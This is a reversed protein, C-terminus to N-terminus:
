DRRGLTAFFTRAIVAYGAANAHENPGVPPAACEWTLQCILAVDKPVSGFGPLNVLGTIDASDFATFVDAVRAHSQTFASTLAANLDEGLPISGEAFAEGSPGTLWDALEPVYYTMGVITASPDAARLRMLIAATNQGATQIAPTACAAVASISTLAVCPNLDNAGIDITILPVHGRHARLFALAADLQNGTDATLSFRQDGAYGCIGGNIMTATTEGPCGLKALVLDRDFPRLMAYLQNAYGQDTPLTVGQANPQDGVSLSDGLSLYYEPAAHYGLGAHGPASHVPGAHDAAAAAPVATAVALALAACIGASVLSLRRM